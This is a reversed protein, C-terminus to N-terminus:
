ETPNTQVTLDEFAMPFTDSVLVIINNHDYGAMELTAEGEVRGLGFSTRAWERQEDGAPQFAVPAQSGARAVAWTESAFPPAEAPAGDFAYTVRYQLIEVEASQSLLPHSTFEVMANAMEAGGCAEECLADATVDTEVVMSLLTDTAPAECGMLLVAPAALYICSKM